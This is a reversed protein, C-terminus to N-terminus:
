KNDKFGDLVRSITTELMRPRNAASRLFSVRIAFRVWVIGGGGGGDDFIAAEGAVTPAVGGLYHAHLNRQKSKHM